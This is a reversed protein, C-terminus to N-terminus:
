QGCRRLRTCDHRERRQLARRGCRRRTQQSQSRSDEAPAGEPREPVRAAGHEVVGSSRAGTCNCCSSWTPMEITRQGGGSESWATLMAELQARLITCLEHLARDSLYAAATKDGNAASAQLRAVVGLLFDANWRVGCVACSITVLRPARDGIQQATRVLSAYPQRQYRQLLAGLAMHAGLTWVAAEHPRPPIRAQDYNEGLGGSEALVMAAASAPSCPLLRTNCSGCRFASTLEAASICSTVGPPLEHVALADLHLCSACRERQVTPRLPLAIAMPLTPHHAPLVVAISFSTRKRLASAEVLEPTSMYGLGSLWVAHPPLRGRAPKSTIAHVAPPRCLVCREKRKGHYCLASGGCAACRDRRKGHSCKAHHDRVM